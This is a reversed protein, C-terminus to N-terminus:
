TLSTLAVQKAGKYDAKGNPARMSASTFVIRKPTKYGALRDRVHSRLEEESARKGAELNAVGTVSEGWKETPLGFVLADAVAPHTKLAEEVEEPYVKEGATNICV